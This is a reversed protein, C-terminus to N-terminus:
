SMSFSWTLHPVLFAIWKRSKGPLGITLFAGELAASSPEIVPRPVLVGCAEPCSFWLTAVVSSSLLRHVAMFIGCAVALGSAVTFLDREM